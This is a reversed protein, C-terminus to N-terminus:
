EKMLRYYYASEIRKGSRTRINHIHVRVSKLLKEFAKGDTVEPWLRRAIDQLSIGDPHDALLDVIEQEKKTM